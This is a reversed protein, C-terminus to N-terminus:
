DVSTTRAPRAVMRFRTGRARVEAAVEARAGVQLKELIHHVHNKVTAVEILLRGAIEKNSLGEDILSVIELERGTLTTRPRAPSAAALAAVRRVLTGAIRPSCLMEGKDVSRIAAVLDDLSAERTVYGTVGAEACAVVEAETEAVTLAVTQVNAVTDGIARICGLGDNMALDVLAIDPQVRSALQVAERPGAAVGVVELSDCRALAAQVGERYLRIDSVLQVRIM